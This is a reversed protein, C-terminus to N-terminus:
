RMAKLIERTAFECCRKWDDDDEQKLKGYGRLLYGLEALGFGGREAMREITQENGHLQAYRAYAREAVSWPILGVEQIPFQRQPDDSVPRWTGVILTCPGVHAHDLGCRRYEGTETRLVQNCQSPIGQRAQPDDSM